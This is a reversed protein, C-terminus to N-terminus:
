SDRQELSWTPLKEGVWTAAGGGDGERRRGASQPSMAEEISGDAAQGERDGGSGQSDDM